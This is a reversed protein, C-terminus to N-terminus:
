NAATRLCTCTNIWSEQTVLAMGHELVHECWINGNYRYKKMYRPNINMTWGGYSYVDGRVTVDWYDSLVKYYGLGTLGLGFQENSTFNPMLFGSHRGQSLPYIGFPLYIPIPVGEFEPHMPGTIALKNNIFKIRNSVFAFHPTDLDCTTIRARKAYFVDNNIKKITEGYVYMEGQQTYTSKTVGKGTKM